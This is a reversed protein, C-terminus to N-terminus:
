PHIKVWPENDMNELYPEWDKNEPHLKFHNKV